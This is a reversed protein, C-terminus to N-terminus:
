PTYASRASRELVSVQYEVTAKARAEYRLRTDNGSPDSRDVLVTWRCVTQVLSM